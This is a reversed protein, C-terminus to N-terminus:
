EESPMEYNCVVTFADENYVKTYGKSDESNASKSYRCLAIWQESTGCFNITTTSIASGALAHDGIYTVNKGITISVLENFNGSFAGSEIETISDPLVISTMRPKDDIANTGIVTVPLDEYTGPVVVDGIANEMGVLKYSEGDENLEFEFKPSGCSAFSVLLTALLACLLLTSVIKEYCNEKIHNKTLMM